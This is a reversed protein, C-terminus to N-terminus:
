RSVWVTADVNLSTGEDAVIIIQLRELRGTLRGFRTRLPVAEGEGDLLNMADAVEVHFISWAAGTDVQAVILDGLAQPQIKVYVKATEEGEPLRDAFRAHGVAFPTGDPLQLM